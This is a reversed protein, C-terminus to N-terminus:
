AGAETWLDGGDFGAAGFSSAFPPVVFGAVPESVRGSSSLFYRREPVRRGNASRPQTSPASDNVVSTTQNRNSRAM